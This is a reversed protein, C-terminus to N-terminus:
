FKELAEMHRDLRLTAKYKESLDTIENFDRVCIWSLAFFNHLHWLLSWGEGRRTTEPNGYFRTLRWQVDRGLEKIVVSIHQNSFNQIELNVHSKWLFALGGSHGGNNPLCQSFVRYM